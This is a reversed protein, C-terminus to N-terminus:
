PKPFASGATAAAWREAAAEVQCVLDALRTTADIALPVAGPHQHRFWTRQRRAFQWTRTALLEALSETGGPAPAELWRAIEAYGLAQRATPTALLGQQVLRQTEEIWGAALMARCRVAIWRRHAEPEPLLVIQLWDAEPPRGQSTASEAAAVLRALSQGTLRLVEVARALRRPNTALRAALEPDSAALEAALAAAGGAELERWVQQAVLPDAPPMTAVSIWNKVYLGSGGALILPHGRARIGARAVDAFQRFRHANFPEPPDLIDVLHHPVEAREAPTPKATGIDLGRYVQMSDGSVIEAGWRRALEMALASKGAATPGLIAVQAGPPPPTM